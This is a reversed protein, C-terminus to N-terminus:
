VNQIVDRTDPDIAIPGRPSDPDTWHRLVDVAADGTAGGHLKAITAFIAAMGDWGSVAMFNPMSEEGYEKKWAAIFARNNPNPLQTSYLGATVTGLVADGM